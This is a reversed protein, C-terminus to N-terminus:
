SCNRIRGLNFIAKIDKQEFIDFFRDDDFYDMIHAAIYELNHTLGQSM